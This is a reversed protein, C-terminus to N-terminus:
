SLDPLPDFSISPPRFNLTPIDVQPVGAIPLLFYAVVGIMALGTMVLTTAIPRHIFPSSVSM